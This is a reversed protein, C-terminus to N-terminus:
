TLCDRTLILDGSPSWKERNERCNKKASFHVVRVIDWEDIILLGAFMSTPERVSLLDHRDIDGAGAKISSAHEVEAVSLPITSFAIQLLFDMVIERENDTTAEIRPSALNYTGGIETPM